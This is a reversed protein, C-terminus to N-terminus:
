NLWLHGDLSSDTALAVFPTTLNRVIGESSVVAIILAVLREFVAMVSTTVNATLCPKILERAECPVWKSLEMDRSSPDIKASGEQTSCSVPLVDILCLSLRSLWIIIVM